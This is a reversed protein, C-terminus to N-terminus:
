LYLIFYSYTCLVCIIRRGVLIFSFSTGPVVSL